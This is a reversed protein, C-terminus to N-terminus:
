LIAQWAKLRTDLHEILIKKTNLPLLFLHIKIKKPLGSKLFTQHHKRFEKEANALYIPDSKKADKVTASDYTLLVPVCAADFVEDLSTNRHLLHSLRGSHPWSPEIKNSLLLFESRLYKEETHDKLESVVDSIAKNINSYFKVEGLWLELAKDTAVVHVADFGKVTNNKSDKYYIKNIAPITGFVQRLLVHLLLEGFEGRRSFKDTSYIISAAKQVLAVASESSISQRESFSLAFDPLWEMMHAALQKARWEEAEFGACAGSLGPSVALDHVILHLFKDPM